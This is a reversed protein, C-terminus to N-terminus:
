GQAFAERRKMEARWRKRIHKQSLINELRERVDKFTKFEYFSINKSQCYSQLDRKAFVIDAYEAPCRDSNGDGVYVIIDDEGSLTLLHNRKCNGCKNCESDTYPFTPYITENGNFNLHNAFFGVRELGNNSLIREIYFDFGDSLVYLEIGKSECFSVFEKFHLDVDQTDAFTELQPRTISPAAQFLRAWCERATITDQLYEEVIKSVEKGGFARFLADGVDNVSVTRDFDCFIRVNM